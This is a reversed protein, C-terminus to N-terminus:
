NNRFWFLIGLIILGAVVTLAIKAASLPIKGSVKGTQGNVMFQYVKGKYTFHAMWVPLLLYKYKIEEYITNTNVSRVRDANKEFRIKKKINNVIKVQIFNKAKEWADKLGLSYREAAFGAIYEPRYAVNEETHFPELGKLISASHRDSALVIQDDIFERYTGGTRYWDTVTKTEDGSRVEREIGYEANYKTTTKADFTWFPLYVGRIEKAKAQMKAEKPCFWKRSLWKKFNAVAQDSDIKFVCVGGPALTDKDQQDMVQNSGCYPCESSTTLADYISEGGCAKCIIVKTEKGWDCNGTKEAEYFDQEQIPTNDEEEGIDFVSGCYLCKLKGTAPDFDMVGGCAPCKRDTEEKTEQIRAEREEYTMDNYNDM